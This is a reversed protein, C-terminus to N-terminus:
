QRKANSFAKHLLKRVWKKNANIFKLKSLKRFSPLFLNGEMTEVEALSTVDKCVTYYAMLAICDYNGGVGNHFNKRGGLDTRWCNLFSAYKLQVKEWVDDREREPFHSAIAKQIEKKCQKSYLVHLSRDIKVEKDKM